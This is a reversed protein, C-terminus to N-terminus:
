TPRLDTPKLSSETSRRRGRSCSKSMRGGASLYVGHAKPQRRLATILCRNLLISRTRQPGSKRAIVARVRTRAPWPFHVATAVAAKAQHSGDTAVLVRFERKRAM